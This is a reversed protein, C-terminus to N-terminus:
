YSKRQLFSNQPQVKLQLAGCDWSNCACDLFTSRDCGLLGEFGDKSVATCTAHARLAAHNCFATSCLVAFRRTILATFARTAVWLSATNSLREISAKVFVTRHRM